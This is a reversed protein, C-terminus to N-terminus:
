ELDAAGQGCPFIETAVGGVPLPSIAVRFFKARKEL